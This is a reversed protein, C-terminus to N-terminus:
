GGVLVRIVRGYIRSPTDEDWWCARYLRWEPQDPVLLPRTDLYRTGTRIVLFSFDAEGPRQSEVWVGSHGYLNFLLEVGAGGVNGQALEPAESHATPALGIINLTRGIVETYGEAKKWRAIEEFLWTLMGCFPEAEPESLVTPVPPRASIDPNSAGSALQKRWATAAKGDSRRTPGFTQGSWILWALVLQIKAQRDAGIGLAGYYDAINTQLNDLWPVQNADRRPFFFQNPM